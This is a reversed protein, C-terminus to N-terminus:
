EDAIDTLTYTIKMTQTPLKIVPSSLNNITGLYAARLRTYIYQNDSTTEGNVWTIKDDRFFRGQRIELQGNVSCRVLDGTKYLIGSKYLTSNGSKYSYDFVIGGDFNPLMCNVYLNQEDGIEVYNIDTYNSMNIIYIGRGSYSRWFLFGASIAVLSQSISTLYTNELTVTQTEGIDFSGDSYKIKTVNIIADGTSNGSSYDTYTSTSRDTKTIYYIFGDMGNIYHAWDTQYDSPLDTVDEVPLSVAGQYSEAVKISYPAYRGRVIKRSDRSRLYIYDDVIAMIQIRYYYDVYRSYIHFNSSVQRIIPNAGAYNSTLALSQITGNAQSTSFDWVSVYGNTIAGSEAGNFSGRMTDTNNASRDAYGVLKATGPFGINNPDEVLTNDFIMLGGLANTAIPFLESSPSRNMKNEFALLYQVANTVLNDEEVVTKKGTNVDTLEIKTHGKLM